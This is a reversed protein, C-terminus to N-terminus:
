FDTSNKCDPVGCSRLAELVNGFLINRLKGIAEIVEIKM